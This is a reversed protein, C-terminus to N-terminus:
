DLFQFGQAMQNLTAITNADNDLCTLTLYCAYNNRIYVHFSMYLATGGEIHKFVGRAGDHADMKSLAEPELGELSVLGDPQYGMAEIWEVLASMAVKNEQNRASIQFLAAQSESSIKVLKESAVDEM